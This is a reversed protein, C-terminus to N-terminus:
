YNIIISNGEWVSDPSWWGSLAVQSKFALRINTTKHNEFVFNTLFVGRNLINNAVLTHAKEWGYGSDVAVELNNNYDWKPTYDILKFYVYSNNEKLRTDQTYHWQNDGPIWFYSDTSSAFVNLSSLLSVIFIVSILFIYKFKLM